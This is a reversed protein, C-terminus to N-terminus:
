DQPVSRTLVAYPYDFLRPLSPLCSSLCASSSSILCVHEDSARAPPPSATREPRGWLFAAAATSCTASAPFGHVPGPLEDTHHLSLDTHLARLVAQSRTEKGRQPAVTECTTQVTTPNFHDATTEEKHGSNRPAGPGSMIEHLRPALLLM